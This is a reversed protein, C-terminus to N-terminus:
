EGGDGPTSRKPLFDASVAPLETSAQQYAVPIQSFQAEGIKQALRKLQAPTVKPSIIADALVIYGLETAQIGANEAAFKRKEDEDHGQVRITLASDHFQKALKAYKATLKQSETLEGLYASPPRQFREATKLAALVRWWRGTYLAEAFFRRECFSDRLM